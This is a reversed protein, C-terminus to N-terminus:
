VVRIHDNGDAQAAGVVAVPIEARRAADVRQEGVGGGLEAQEGGTGGIPAAMASCTAPFRVADSPLEAHLEADFRHGGGMSSEGLHDAAM